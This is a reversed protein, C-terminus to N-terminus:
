RGPVTAVRVSIASMSRAIDDSLGIVRSSKTGPAPELEYLTIVPGPRVKVIEGRIGFDELVGSLMAANQELAEPTPANDSRSPDPADLLDLPPSKYESGMGLDLSKQRQAEAKRGVKAKPTKPAILDKKRARPKIATRETKRARPSVGTIQPGGDVLGDYDEKQSRTSIHHAGKLIYAGLKANIWMLARTVKQWDSTPLGLSFVFAAIGPLAVTAAITVHNFFTKSAGANQLFLVTRDLLIGGSVGGLGSALPWTQYPKIITASISLAILACLSLVVRLWLHSLGVKRVLLFGWAFLAIAPLWAGLGFSQLAVDSVIAGFSGLLNQVPGSAASNLSPDSSTFSALAAGYAVAVAI